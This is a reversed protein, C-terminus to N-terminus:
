STFVSGIGRGCVSLCRVIDHVRYLGRGSVHFNVCMWGRGLVMVLVYLVGLADISNARAMVCLGRLVLWRIKFHVRECVDRM